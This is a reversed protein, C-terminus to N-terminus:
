LGNGFRREFTLIMLYAMVALACLRLWSQLEQRIRNLILTRGGSEESAAESSSKSILCGVRKVKSGSEAM